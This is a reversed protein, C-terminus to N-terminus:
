VKLFLSITELRGFLESFDARSPEPAGEHYASKSKSTKTFVLSGARTMATQAAAAGAKACWENAASNSPALGMLSSPAKFLCPLAFAASRISHNAVAPGAVSAGYRQRM